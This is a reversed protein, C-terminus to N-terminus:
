EKLHSFLNPLTHGGVKNKKKLIIKAIQLGKCNWILKFIQKEMEVVVVFFPWQFKSVSQM